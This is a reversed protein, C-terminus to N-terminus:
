TLLGRLLCLDCHDLLLNLSIFCLRQAVPLGGHCVQTMSRGPVLPEPDLEASALM